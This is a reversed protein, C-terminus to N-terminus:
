SCSPPGVATPTPPRQRDGHPQEFLLAPGHAKSARDAIEAMELYPDVEPRVRALEGERGASEVFARLDM